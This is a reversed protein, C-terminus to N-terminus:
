ERDWNLAPTSAPNWRPLPAEETVPLAPAEAPERGTNFRIDQSIISTSSLNLTTGEAYTDPYLRYLDIDEFSMNLVRESDILRDEADVVFTFTLNSRNRPNDRMDALLVGLLAGVNSEADAALREIWDALQPATLIIRLRAYTSGDDAEFLEEDVSYGIDRNDLLDGLMLDDYRFRQMNDLDFGDIEVPYAAGDEIERWGVPVVPFDGETDRLLSSVYLTGEVLRADIEATYRDREFSPRVREFSVTVEGEVTMAGVRRVLHLRGVDEQTVIFQTQGKPTTFTQTEDYSAVFEVTFDQANLLYARAAELTQLRNDENDQAHSQRPLFSSIAALLLLALLLGRAFGRDIMARM